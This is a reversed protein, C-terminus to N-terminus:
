PPVRAELLLKRSVHGAVGAAAHLLPDHVSAAPRAPSLGRSVPTSVARSARVAERSSQGM